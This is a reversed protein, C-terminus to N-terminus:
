QFYTILSLIDAMELNSSTSKKYKILEDEVNFPPITFYIAFEFSNEVLEEALLQTAPSDTLCELVKFFAIIKDEGDTKRWTNLAPGLM